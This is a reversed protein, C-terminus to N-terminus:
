SDHSEELPATSNPTPHWNCGPRASHIRFPFQKVRKFPDDMLVKGIRLADVTGSVLHQQLKRFPGRVNLQPVKEGVDSLASAAEVLQFFQAALRPIL